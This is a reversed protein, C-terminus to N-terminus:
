SSRSRHLHPMPAVGAISWLPNGAAVEAAAVLACDPYAAETLTQGNALVYEETWTSRTTTIVSGLPATDYGIEGKAGQPGSPMQTVTGTDFDVEDIWLYTGSAGTPSAGIQALKVSGDAASIGLGVQVGSANAGSPELTFAKIWLDTAPWYGAPLTFLRNNLSVFDWAATSRLAGRIMVKGLPDKRFTVTKGSLAGWGSGFAPEGAAGVTHFPDMPVTSNGGPDGKDGKAGPGVKAIFLQPAQWLIGAGCDHYITATITTGAGVYVTTALTDGPNNNNTGSPNPSARAIRNGGAYLQLIRRNNNAVDNFYGYATIAYYGAEQITVVGTGTNLTPPAAGRTSIVNNYVVGIEVGSTISQDPRSVVLYSESVPADGKDGKEGKPGTPFTTQDTSFRINDLSFWSNSGNQPQVRGDAQVFVNCRRVTRRRAPFYHEAAINPKYGAPLHLAITNRTGSRILGRMEVIGDPRKRYRAPYDSDGYNRGTTAM